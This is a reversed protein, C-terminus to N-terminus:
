SLIEALLDYLDKQQRASIEQYRKRCAEQLAPYSTEVFRCLAQYIDTEYLPSFYIPAEALVERVPGINSALVPKGYRMVEVPPYGFGEFLTPYILAHCSSYAKQLDGESLFPLPIHNAFQKDTMMGTTVLYYDSHREAFRKFAHVAKRTNKLPHQMGLLLMFRKGSNIINALESNMVDGHHEVYIREPSYWVHIRDPPVDYAYLISSKTYNSVAVIEAKPNNAILQVTNVIHWSKTRSKRKHLLLWNVLSATSKNQARHYIDIDDRHIEEFSLDHAVVIVKCKLGSLERYNELEQVCGIFFTNIHYAEVIDTLNTTSVDIMKIGKREMEVPQLDDYAIGQRVDYVGFFSVPAGEGACRLLEEIIRRLYEAAGNKRVLSLCDILINM